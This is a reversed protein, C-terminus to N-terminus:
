PNAPAEAPTTSARHKEVAARWETIQEATRELFQNAEDMDLATFSYDCGRGEPKFAIVLLPEEDWDVTVEAHFGHGSEDVFRAYSM